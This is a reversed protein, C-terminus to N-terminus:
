VDARSRPRGRGLFAITAEYLVYMVGGLIVPSLPDGGPTIVVAFIVIGLLVYRRSARLREVTVIRLKSLVYLLIPFQMVFGFALFMLIVFDFYNEVTWLAEVEGPITFGLLFGLTLPLVLYAVACGLIFLLLAIPIWPRAIRREERTLGPSVFAWLQYLVVPFALVLGVLLSLKLQVFFGGGPTTFVLPRPYPAKLVTILHPAVLFGVVAGVVVALVAIAIRRRLESLHDVLSM